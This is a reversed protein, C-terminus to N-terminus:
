AALKLLKFAQFQRVGGGVRRTTYFQVFGKNTFPDRLVRVGIRDIILYGQKFDGYAISLSDAAAAPMADAYMLKKGLLLFSRDKNLGSEPDVSFLYRGDLDKLKRITGATARKMLWMANAQFNEFLDNQLDLLNDDTFTGAGGSNRQEIKDFDDGADYSLIGKPKKIGDGTIFAEAEARTFKEVVKNAHWQEVNLAADDLLKQTIEPNAFQEHVPIRIQNITANATKNRAETEGVWGFGAEDNSYNEEWADSSITQIDASGRLPSSEFLKNTIQTSMEPRVLFGGDPDSIVSLTKYGANEQVKLHALYNEEQEKNVSGKVMFSRVAEKAKKEIEINEDTGKVGSRRNFATQIEEIVAETKELSENIKTLKEEFDATGANKEVLKLRTDNEDKFTKFDKQFSVMADDFKKALDM